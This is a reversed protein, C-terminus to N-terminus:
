VKGEGVVGRGERDENRVVAFVLKGLEMGYVEGGKYFEGGGGDLCFNGWCYEYRGEGM